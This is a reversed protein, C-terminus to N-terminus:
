KGGKRQKPKASAYQKKAKAACVARKRKPQRKCEKLAKALKQARTLPKPKSKPEEQSQAAAEEEQSKRADAAIEEQRHSASIAAAEALQGALAHAEAEHQRTTNLEEEHKKTTSREEEHKQTTSLEEELKKTTGLEEEHEKTTAAEEEQQKKIGEVTGTVTQTGGSEHYDIQITQPGNSCPKAFKIPIESGQAANGFTGTLARSSLVFTYEEGPTLAPCPQGESPPGVNVQLSAGGLAIAGTSTLESNDAGASMGAHTIQFSVKSAGDFTASDAQIGEAPFSASGVDLEADDTSLAGVAGSGILFIHNLNVPEGDAFNLEGFFPVFGNLIGAKSSNTGAIALPGVETENELYVVAENGIELTLANDGSLKGVIAAGNEGLGGGSRGVVSWTQPASLDIPLLIGDGSAGSSESSPAVKLGGGGLAIEDGSLLYEDGNDLDISEVKLGSVDNESKYCTSCGSLHPFELAVAESSSPAAEGAWNKAGSWHPESLSGTWTFSPATADAAPAMGSAVVALIPLVGIVRMWTRLRDFRLHDRWGIPQM